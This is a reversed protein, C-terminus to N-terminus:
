RYTYTWLQDWDGSTDYVYFGVYNGTQCAPELLTQFQSVSTAFYGGELPYVVLVMTGVGSDYFQCNEPHVNVWGPTTQQTFRSTNGHAIQIKTTPPAKPTSQADAVALLVILVLVPIMAWKALKCFM